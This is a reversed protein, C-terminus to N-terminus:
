YLNPYNLYQIDPKRFTILTASLYHCPAPQTIEEGAKNETNEFFDTYRKIKRECLSLLEGDENERMVYFVGVLIDNGLRRAMKTLPMPQM